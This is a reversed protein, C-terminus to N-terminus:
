MFCLLIIDPSTTLFLFFISIKSESYGNITVDHFGHVKPYALFSHHFYRIVIYDLIGANSKFHAYTDCNSKEHKDKKSCQADIILM